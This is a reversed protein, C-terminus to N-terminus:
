GHHAVSEQWVADGRLLGATREGIQGAKSSEVSSV